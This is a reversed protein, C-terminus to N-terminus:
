PLQANTSKSVKGSRAATAAPKRKVAPKRASKAAAARKPTPKAASAAPKAPEDTSRVALPLGDYLQRYVKANRLVIQVYDRTETIPITEIFESPESFNGWEAWRVVRSRGGNYSALAAEWKGNLSNLLNRIYYTGLRLNVDPVFLMSTNFRRIGVRRSLERGTAPMVQTLGLARARSVAKPDFESEQRVLGAVVYPDVESLRANKLLSERFPMPFAIRWFDKPAQEMPIMLYEPVYAKVARLAHDSAGRRELLKALEMALLHPQEGNRAAFRLESEAWDSFGAGDLLKVRELRVRTAPQVEFSASRRKDPLKLSAVFEAAEPAATARAIATDELRERALVAYYHNPYRHALQAYYGKAMGYARNREALRGLFYLSAPVKESDPFRKLHNKLINERSNEDRLYNTWTVKWDCFSAHREQPFGDACARYLPVFSEPENRYLHDYAVNVLTEARWRSQPYNSEFEALLAPIEGHRDLRRCAEVLYHLREAGAEPNSVSLGKLHTYAAAYRRAQYDYVGLRVEALDREAGTLQPLATELVKRAEAFNRGQALGAARKLQAQPMVPPYRDGLTQQLRTLADAAEQVRDWTPHSYYVTQYHAAASVADGASEFAKGLAFEADARPLLPHRGILSIADRARGSDSMADAALLVARTAFPSVLADYRDSFVPTLAAIAAPYNKLEYHASGTYYRAYDALKPLRGAVGNLHAVAEEYSKAQTDHWGVALLALAGQSDKPHAQAFNLLARKGAPSPSELFNRTLTSLPQATVAGALCMGLLAFQGNSWLARITRGWQSNMTM